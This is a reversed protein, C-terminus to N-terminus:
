NKGLLDESLGHRIFFLLLNWFMAYRISNVILEIMTCQISEYKKNMYLINESKNVFYSSRMHYINTPKM